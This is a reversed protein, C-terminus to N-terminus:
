HWLDELELLQTFKENSNMLGENLYNEDSPLGKYDDLRAYHGDLDNFEYVSLQTSKIHTQAPVIENLREVLEQSSIKEFSGAKVFLSLYNIIYPSHSTMILQNGDTMNNIELLSALVNWQTSPFLNQEPEEIINIFRRKRFKDSITSMASRRQEETFKPNNIIDAILKKFRELEEEKSSQQASNLVSTALNRSVIYMPIFSQYGSSVESVRLKYDNGKLHLIDNQRDYELYADAIPLPYQGKINRQAIKYEDKFERLSPSSLKLEKFTEIYTLFNREAPVYMIQPLESSPNNQIIHLKGDEFLFSYSDGIFEIRTDSKLYNHIRHYALISNKFKSKREFYKLTHDGRNLSKEMWLFSSILKAISSKGTGQNGILLTVKSIEIWTNNDKLPGFNEVRIKAM